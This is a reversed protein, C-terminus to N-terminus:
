PALDKVAIAFARVSDAWTPLQEAHRQAAEALGRRLSADGQLLSRLAAAFAPASGAEVLLGADAPVTFPIAGGTTSVIPLGHALADALAMGYGEYHSALVFASANRYLGVLESGLREGVFSVRDELGSRSVARMISEAYAPDRDPSGACICRWELDAVHALAEVLVDYGKRPTVSAVCLLTPPGGQTSGGARRAPRTGPLVVRIREPSLDYEALTRATYDSSVIAGACPRLARRETDRFRAADATSIGTEESLPHHLMSIIRLRSAHREVPEPLGGMALGDIVARAGDAMSELAAELAEIAVQDPHPFRGPLEHVRVNWGLEELGAAMQADYVYGGTLQDLPGPVVFHLETRSM